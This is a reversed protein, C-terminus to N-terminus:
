KPFLIWWDSVQNGRRWTQYYFGYPSEFWCGRRWSCHLVRFKRSCSLKEICNVIPRQCAQSEERSAVYVRSSATHSLFWGKRPSPGQHDFTLLYICGVVSASGLHWPALWLQSLKRNLVFVKRLQCFYIERKINSALVPCIRPLKALSFFFVVKHCPM